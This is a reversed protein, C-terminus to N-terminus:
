SACSAAAMRSPTSWPFGVSHRDDTEGVHMAVRRPRPRAEHGVRGEGECSRADGEGLEAEKVGASRHVDERPAGTQQEAEVPVSLLDRDRERAVERGVLRPSDQEVNLHRRVRRHTQRERPCAMVRERHQEPLDVEELLEVHAEVEIGAGGEHGSAAVVM